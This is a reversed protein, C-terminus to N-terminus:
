SIKEKIFNPLLKEDEYFKNTKALQQHKRKAFVDCYIDLTMSVDAHGLLKSLVDVEIGAEICRTAYTHRLMHQNCEDFKKIKYKECFRKFGSNVASTTIYKKNKNLFILKESNPISNRIAEELIIKVVPTIPVTRYGNRTKCEDGMITNDNEDRTLSRRIYITETNFDIDTEKLANIEGMRMGTYLELLIQYKYPVQPANNIAILFKRHENINFAMIKKTTIDSKPKELDDDYMLPNLFLLKHKIGRNLANNLLQYIKNIVSQSYEKKIEDFFAIISSVLLNNKELSQLPTNFEDCREIIKLTELLRKNSSERTKGKRHRTDIEERCLDVITIDTKKVAIGTKLKEQKEKKDDSVIRQKSGSSLTTQKGNVTAQGMWVEQCYFRDCYKLCDTKCNKCKDCKDYGTRGNCAERNTCTSCISCENELFKKRKTKKVTKYVTGEGNARKSM